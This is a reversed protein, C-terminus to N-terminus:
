ISHGTIPEMPARVPQVQDLLPGRTRAAPGPVAAVAAAGGVLCRWHCLCILRLDGALGWLDM